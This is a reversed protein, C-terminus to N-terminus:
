FLTGIISGFLSLPGTDELSETGKDIKQLTLKANRYFEQDNVVKGITGQGNNVKTLIQNLNSM